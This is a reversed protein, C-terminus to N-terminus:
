NSDEETRTGSGAASTPSVHTVWQLQYELKLLMLPSKFRLSLAGDGHSVARSALALCWQCHRPMAARGARQRSGRVIVAEVHKM